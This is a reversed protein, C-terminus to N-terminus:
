VSMQTGMEVVQNRPIRFFDTAAVASHAMAIYLHDQWEPLGYQLSHRRAAAKPRKQRSAKDEWAHTLEDQMRRASSSVISRRGLFFSAEQLNLQLGHQRAISMARPVDPTEMYGFIIIMRTVNSSLHEIIFRQDDSVKPSHTTVVTLIINHEHLVKNHKLNQMLAVPAVQPDSTLFVATGPVHKPSERDLTELLDSLAITRRHAQRYLYRTGRIWTIMLTATITALCLPVYGGALLKLLNSGLFALEVTLFPLLMCAAFLPNKKWVRWVVVFALITTVIMTGNVALGYAAALNDSSRFILCLLLVTFMLVRNIKPMYIQGEQRTSTHRIEMRPLLGFQIAQQGMSYAGTIVAQSAIITAATALLILPILGWEPAMLYFSNDVAKPNASNLLVLAAQGMYNLILCPFVLCLWATQIPKRGFHGLDVYLAEAGTVALFAAGMVALAMTGHTLLFHVAYYPNFSLLVEPDKVLWRLGLAGITLFWVTTIPGFLKSINATGNKQFSFLLILIFIVLPLVIHQFRQNVLELGEVASLVSIAPTIAAEGYFLSAGLIGLLFVAGAWKGAGKRALAMLSLSGGEGKNDVRLLFLVYKCTVNIILVWLIISLLGFIENRHVAGHVAVHQAAVHFAYLPSTGIDGYVVGICSLTLAWFNPKHNKEANAPVDASKTHM